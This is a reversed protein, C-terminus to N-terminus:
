NFVTGLTIIQLNNQLLERGRAFKLFDKVFGSIRTINRQLMDIGQAMRESNATEMGSNLMYMGGDLATVLNKIGHSLGSVTQGVAAMREAEMKAKTLQKIERLDHFGLLLGLSTGRSQLRVGKLNVPIAEDSREPFLLLDTFSFSDTGSAITRNVEKPLIAFIEEANAAGIAPLGLLRVLIPNIVPIDGNDDIVVLGRLSNHIIETLMLKRKEDQERLETVTTVDVAMEMISYVKGGEDTLPVATVQYNRFKGEPSLWVTNDQQTTKSFFAKRAICNSCVTEEGKLVRYCPKGEINGYTDRLMRNSDVIRLEKDIIAICCPVLEFFSQYEHTLASISNNVVAV